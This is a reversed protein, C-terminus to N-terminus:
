LGLRRTNTTRTSLVPRAWLRDIAVAPRSPKLLVGDARAVRMLLSANSDGVGDCSAIPGAALASVQWTACAPCPDCAPRPTGCAPHGRRTGREGAYQLSAQKKHGQRGTAAGTGHYSHLTHAVWACAAVGLEM